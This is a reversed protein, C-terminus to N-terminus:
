HFIPHWIPYLYVIMIKINQGKGFNPLCSTKLLQISLMCFIIIYPKLHLDLTLNGKWLSPKSNWSWGNLVASDLCSCQINSVYQAKMIWRFMNIHTTYGGHVNCLKDNLVKFVVVSTVAGWIQTSYVHM